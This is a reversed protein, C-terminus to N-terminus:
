TCPRPSLPAPNSRQTKSNPCELSQDNLQETSDGAQHLSLGAGDCRWVAKQPLEPLTGTTNMLPKDAARAKFGSDRVTASRQLLCFAPELLSCGVNGIPLLHGPKIQLPLEEAGQVIVM